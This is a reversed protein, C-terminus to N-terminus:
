RVALVSMKSSVTCNNKLLICQDQSVPASYSNGINMCYNIITIIENGKSIFVKKEM